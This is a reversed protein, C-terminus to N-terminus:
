VLKLSPVAAIKQILPVDYSVRDTAKKDCLLGGRGAAVNSQSPVPTLIEGDTTGPHRDMFCVCYKQQHININNYKLVRQPAFM